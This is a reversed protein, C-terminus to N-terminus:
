PSKPILGPPLPAHLETASTSSTSRQVPSSGERVPSSTSEVRYSLRYRAWYGRWHRQITTASNDRLEKSIRRRVADKEDETSAAALDALGRNLIQAEKHQKSLQGFAEYVFGLIGVVIILIDGWSILVVVPHSGLRGTEGYTTGDNLPFFDGFGITSMTVFASWVREGYNAEAAVTGYGQLLAPVVLLFFALWVLVSLVLRVYSARLNNSAQAVTPVGKDGKSSASVAAAAEEPQPVCCRMPWDLADVLLEGVIISMQCVLPIGIMAYFVVFVRGGPTVPALDGYGVTTLTVVVFYFSHALSPLVDPELARLVFFGVVFYVGGGLWLGAQQRRKQVTAKAVTAEHSLGLLATCLMAFIFAGVGFLQIASIYAYAAVADPDFDAYGAGPDREHLEQLGEAASLSLGILVAYLAAVLWTLGCALALELAEGRLLGCGRCRRLPVLLEFIGDFLLGLACNQLVFILALWRRVTDPHACEGEACPQPDSVWSDRVAHVSTRNEALLEAMPVVRCSGSSCDLQGHDFSEILAMLTHVCGAASYVLVWPTQWGSFGFGIADEGKADAEFKRGELSLSANIGSQLERSMALLATVKADLEASGQEGEVGHGVAYWTSRARGRRKRPEMALTPM